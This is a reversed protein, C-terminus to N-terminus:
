RRVLGLGGSGLVLRFPRAKREAEEERKRCYDTVTRWHGYNLVGARVADRIMYTYGRGLRWQRATRRRRDARFVETAWEAVAPGYVASGPEPPMRLRHRVSFPRYGPLAYCRRGNVTKTPWADINVTTYKALRKRALKAARSPVRAPKEAAKAQEPASNDLTV